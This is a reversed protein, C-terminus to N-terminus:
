DLIKGNKLIHDVNGYGASVVSGQYNMYHGVQLEGISKAQDDRFFVTVCSTSLDSQKFKVYFNGYPHNTSAGVDLIEGAWQVIRGSHHPLVIPQTRNLKDAKTGYAIDFDFFDLENSMEAKGFLLEDYKKSVAKSAAKVNKGVFGYDLEIKFFIGTLILCLMVTNMIVLRKYRDDHYQESLIYTSHCNVCCVQRGLFEPTIEVDKGCNPCNVTVM